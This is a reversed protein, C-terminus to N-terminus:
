AAAFYQNIAQASRQVDDATLGVLPLNLLRREMRTAQPFEENVGFMPAIVPYWDSVAVRQRLLESILGPRLSEEVLINYRWPVAGRHFAYKTLRPGWDLSREYRRVNEWRESIITELRSLSASLRAVQEASARFLFCRHLRERMCEYVAKTLIGTANNRLVRYVGSLVRLEAEISPDWSPLESSATALDDLNRQSVILGGYGCDITKSHGYSYVAYDGFTGTTAGDVEAGMALACDEILVTARPRLMQCIADIDRCPNGYMHPIVAGKLDSRWAAKVTACTLNGDEGVDAFLPENGSYVIPLVAAYCINAPVLVRAGRVRNARLALFIATSARGTYLHNRSALYDSFRM